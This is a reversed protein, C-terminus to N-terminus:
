GGPLSAVLVVDDAFRVDLTVSKVQSTFWISITVHCKRLPSTTKSCLPRSSVSPDHDFAVNDIQHAELELSAVRIVDDAFRVDLTM